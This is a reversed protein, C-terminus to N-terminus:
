PNVNKIQSFDMTEGDKGYFMLSNVQIKDKNENSL